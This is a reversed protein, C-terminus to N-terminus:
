NPFTQGSIKPPQIDRNIIDLNAAIPVGGPAIPAELGGRKLPRDAARQADVAGATAAPTQDTMRVTVDPTTQM